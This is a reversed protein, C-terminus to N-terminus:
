NVNYYNMCNTIIKGLIVRRCNWMAIEQKDTMHGSLKVFIKEKMLM